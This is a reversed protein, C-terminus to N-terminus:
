PVSVVVVGTRGGKDKAIVRGEGPGISVSGDPLLEVPIQGEAAVSVIPVRSSGDFFVVTSFHGQSPYVRAPFAHIDAKGRAVVRLRSAPHSTDNTRIVLEAENVGVALKSPILQALVRDATVERAVLWDETSSAGIIVVGETSSLTVAEATLRESALDVIGFDLLGRSLHYTPRVTAAVNVRVEWPLEGCLGTVGITSSKKGVRFGVDLDFAVELTDNARIVQGQYRQAVVTCNCSAAVSKITAPRGSQNAILFSGSVRDGWFHAGLDLYEPM